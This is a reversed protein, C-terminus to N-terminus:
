AREKSTPLPKTSWTGYRSRIFADAPGFDYGDAGERPHVREWKLDNEPVVLNLQEKVVAIERQLDDTNRIVGNVKNTEGGVGTAIARSMAAGVYFHGKYADKLAPPPANTQAAAGSALLTAALASILRKAPLVCARRFTFAKRQNSFIQRTKM